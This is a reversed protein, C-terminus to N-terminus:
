MHLKKKLDVGFLMKHLHIALDVILSVREHFMGFYTCTCVVGEM